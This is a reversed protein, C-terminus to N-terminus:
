DAYNQVYNLVPLPKRNTDM